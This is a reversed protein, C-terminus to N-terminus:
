KSRCLILLNQRGEITMNEATLQKCATELKAGQEKSDLYITRLAFGGGLIILLLIFIFVHEEEIRM